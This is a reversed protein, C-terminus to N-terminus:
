AINNRSGFESIRKSAGDGNPLSSAIIVGSFMSVLNLKGPIVPFNDGRHYYLKNHSVLAGWTNSHISSRFRFNEIPFRFEEGKWKEGEQCVSFRVEKQIKRVPDVELYVSLLIYSYFGFM